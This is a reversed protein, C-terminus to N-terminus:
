APDFILRIVSSLVKVDESWVRAWDSNVQKKLPFLISDCPHILAREVVRDLGSEGRFLRLLSQVRTQRLELCDTLGSNM